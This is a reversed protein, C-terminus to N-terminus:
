GPTTGAAPEAPVDGDQEDADDARDAAAIWDELEERTLKTLDRTGVNVSGDLDIQQKPKHWGTDRVWEAAKTIESPKPPSGTYGEPKQGKAIAVQARIIKPMDDGVVERVLRGIGKPRGSPNGSQGEKFQTAKLHEAKSM